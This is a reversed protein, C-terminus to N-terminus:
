IYSNTIVASQPLPRVWNAARGAKQIRYINLQAHDVLFLLESHRVGWPAISFSCSSGPSSHYYLKLLAIPDLSKQVDEM